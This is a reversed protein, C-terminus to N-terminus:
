LFSVADMFAQVLSLSNMLVVAAGRSAETRLQDGPQQNLSMPRPFLIRYEETDLVEKDCGTLRVWLPEDIVCMKLLETLSSMALKLAITKQEEGIMLSGGAPFLAAGSPKFTKGFCSTMGSVQELQLIKRISSIILRSWM